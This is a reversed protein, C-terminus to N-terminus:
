EITHCRPCILRVEGAGDFIINKSEAYSWVFRCGCQCVAEGDGGEDIILRM